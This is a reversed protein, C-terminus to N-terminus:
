PKGPANPSNVQPNQGSDTGRYGNALDIEASFTQGGISSNRTSLEEKVENFAHYLADLPSSQSLRPQLAKDLAGSLDEGSIGHAEAVFAWIPANPPVPQGEEPHFPPSSRSDLKFACPQRDENLGVLWFDLRDEAHRKPDPCSARASNWMTTLRASAVQAVDKLSTVGKSDCDALIKERTWLLTQGAMIAGIWRNVKFMKVYDDRKTGDEDAARGDSLLVIKDQVFFAGIFTGASSFDNERSTPVARPSEVGSQLASVIADSNAPKAADQGLAAFCTVLTELVGITRALM